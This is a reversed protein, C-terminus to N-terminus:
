RVGNGQYTVSSYRIEKGEELDIFWAKYHGRVGRTLTDFTAIAHYYTECYCAFRNEPSDNHDLNWVTIQYRM